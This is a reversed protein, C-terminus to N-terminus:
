KDCFHTWPLAILTDDGPCVHAKVAQKFQKEMTFHGTHKFYTLAFFFSTFMEKTDDINTAQGVKIWSESEKEVTRQFVRSARVQKYDIIRTNGQHSNKKLM